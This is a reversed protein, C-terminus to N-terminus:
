LKSIRRKMKRKTKPLRRAPGKKKGAPRTNEVDEMEDAAGGYQAMLLRNEFEASRIAASGQSVVFRIIEDDSSVVLMKEKERIAMRKIVTDASEGPHSFHLEIGKLRDRRPLGSPAEAGDFVVTIKYRKLKKYEALADVLSERGMQMALRDQVSFLRSQRILNYGDIVIHFGMVGTHYQSRWASIRPSRAQAAAYPM